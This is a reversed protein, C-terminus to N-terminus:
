CHGSYPVGEVNPFWERVLRLVCNPMIDRKHWMYHKRLPDLELARQKKQTYRVDKWVGRNLLSTWFRKYIPLRTSRNHQSPLTNHHPWWTQRGDNHTCCPRCLCDPCEGDGHNDDRAPIPALGAAVTQRCMSDEIEAERIWAKKHDDKSVCSVIWGKSSFLHAIAQDQEPTLSLCIIKHADMTLHWIHHTPLLTQEISHSFSVHIYPICQSHQTEWENMVLM